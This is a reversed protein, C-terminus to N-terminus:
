EQAPKDNEQAEKDEDDEKKSLLPVFMLLVLGIGAVALLVWWVTANKDGTDPAGGSAEGDATATINIKVSVVVDGDEATLNGLLTDLENSKDEFPWQWALTYRTAHGVSLGETHSVGNLKAMQDFKKDTGLLFDGDQNFFQALLPVTYEQDKSSVVMDAETSVTYEVPVEGTNRVFFYYQNSTGPAIVKDGYASKVVVDGSENEYRARFIEVKTEKQWTQKEDYVSVGAQLPRKTTTTTSKDGDGDSDDDGGVNVNIDTQPTDDISKLLLPVVVAASIGILVVLLSAVIGLILATKSSKKM